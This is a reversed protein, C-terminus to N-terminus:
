RVVYEYYDCDGSNWCARLSARSKGDRVAKRLSEERLSEALAEHEFEYVNGREWRIEDDDSNQWVLCAVRQETQVITWYQEGEKPKWEEELEADALIQAAKYIKVSNNPHWRDQWNEKVCEAAEKKTMM